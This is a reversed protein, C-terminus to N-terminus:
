ESRNRQRNNNRLQFFGLLAFLVGILIGGVHWWYFGPLLVSEGPEKPNFHIAVESNGPYQSLFINVQDETEFWTKSNHFAIRDSNFHVGNVEYGYKVVACYWDFIFNVNVRREFNTSEVTGVVTPWNLSQYGRNIKSGYSLLLYFGVLIFPIARGLKSSIKM